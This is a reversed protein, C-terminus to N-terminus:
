APIVLRSFESVATARASDVPYSARLKVRVGPLYYLYFDSNEVVGKTVLRLRLYRGLRWRDNPAPELSRRTVVAISDTYGRKVMEPFASVFADVDQDIVKAACSVPCDSALDPGGYVFVDVRMSDARQYRLMVGLSRDDFDQRGAM